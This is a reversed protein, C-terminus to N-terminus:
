ISAGFRSKFQNFDSNGVFGDGDFDFIPDSGGFATRFLNFDSGSVNGDGNADGFLCFINTPPLMTNTESALIYNGGSKLDGNGDMFGWANSVKNDFITLTYRGDMLSGYQAIAGPFNLTVSTATVGGVSAALDVVGNDSQRKLQFALKADTPLTVIRDFTVTISTVRSRQPSGDNIKVSAVRPYATFVPGEHGDAAPTYGSAFAESEVFPYYLNAWDNFGHLTDTDSGSFNIDAQVTTPPVEYTTSFDWDVKADGSAALNINGFKDGYPVSFAPAGGKIGAMENLAAENLDDLTEGSYDLTWSAAYPDTVAGNRNFVDPYQWTYNMVSHYNPKYNDGDGGGHDLGLTHGLEHMWTGARDVDDLAPALTAWGAGGFTVMFDNGFFEGVGSSGDIVIPAGSHDKMIANSDDRQYFRWQKAFMSYRHTLTLATRIQPWYLADGRQTSTGFSGDTGTGSTGNKITQFAPFPDDVTTFDVVALAKEDYVPHLTVGNTLDPNHVNANTAAAFAAIVGGDKALTGAAFIAAGPAFGTMADIEVFIDKHDRKAGTLIKENVTLSGDQDIDLGKAEEWVDALGDADTDILSFESTNGLADTATATVKSYPSHDLSITAVGNANTKVNKSFIHTKGEGYETPDLGPSEYFDIDFFSDATSELLWYHVGFDEAANPRAVLTPYDQLKNAKTADAPNEGKADNITVWDDNLDIGRGKNGYISNFRVKNGTGSQIEVGHNKLDTGNGTIINKDTTAAGGITNKSAGELIFVGHEKNLGISNTRVVNDTTGGRLVVGSKGSNVVLNGGTILNTSSGFIEIGNMGNGFLETGTKGTGINNASITNSGFPNNFGIFIGDLGNAAIVNGAAAVLGGISNSKATLMFIGNGTNGLKATGAADTGIYNGQVLNGMATALQVGDGGNGSIVNGAGAVTGGITSGSVNNFALGAGGNGLAAAGAGDVGIYNGQISTGAGSNLIAIGGNLNGSVLNRMAATTGGVKAGTVNDLVMGTAGNPLAKAGTIDTGVRNGQIVLGSTVSANIGNTTNGSILNGVEPTSGGITINPGYVNVGTGNAVALTGTRDTGIFNKTISIGGAGTSGVEIGYAVNGSIINGSIMCTSASDIRIGTGNPMAIAGTADTGVYCNTVTNGSGNMAIGFGNSFNNVILNLVSSGGVGLYLGPYASAVGNGRLEVLPTGAFGPQSGGNITTPTIITPLAASPNIVYSPGPLAFNITDADPDGNAQLLRHRLSGIVPNGMGDLDGTNTVTFTAPALRSELRLLNPVWKRKKANNRGM